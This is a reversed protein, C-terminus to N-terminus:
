RSVIQEPSHWTWGCEPCASQKIQILAGCSLCETPEVVFEFFEVKGCNACCYVLFTDLEELLSDHRSAYSRKGRFEMPIQCRLCDMATQTDEM